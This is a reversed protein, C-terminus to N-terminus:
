EAPRRISDARRAQPAGVRFRRDTLSVIGGVFMIAAGLWILSVLPNFYVRM